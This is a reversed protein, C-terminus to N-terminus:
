NADADVPTVHLTREREYIVMGPGGGKMHRVYRQETHDVPVTTAERAQSYYAALAAAERLTTDPTPRGGSKIIVHAGPVGRAHLWIDNARGEGFTVAENQRSNKGVLLTFGDTSTRRLPTGGEAGRRPPQGKGGKSGKGGKAQQKKGAGKANGRAGIKGKGRLYGAEVVEARVQTVEDPTEALVLDTRLQELRSMELHNAEIQPPIQAGARQLKAYRAYKRTANEVASLRPDLPISLIEPQDAGDFPNAIEFASAGAPVETQFALLTDAEVRLRLAEDLAGLEDRLAADKRQCRDLNTQLVRRLDGKAGDVAGRWEADAYYVALMEDVSAMERLMAAGYQVPQYVAFAMPRREDDAGYVLTPRWDKTEPLAALARVAEALAGWDRDAALPVDAAGFARACAEGALERGFGAVHTALVGRVDPQRGRRGSAMTAADASLMAETAVRLDDATVHEGTLRPLTAGHLTRTQPPPPTYPVNPAIVRYRNIQAGVHRLSGLIMGADDRLILNSLKGMLEIVLWVSGSAASQRFCIEIVREWRPQRLDTVRAGELHKRLLMVFAPPELTLKRPKGAVFHVRAFQAHASALLWRKQGGNYCQLAIAQPTPQIVDEIRAGLLSIAFEDRLAALTIADLQM